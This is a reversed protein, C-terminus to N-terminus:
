SDEDGDADEDEGVNEDDGGGGSGNGSGVENPNGAPMRGHEKGTNQANQACRAANKPDLWFALQTDWDAQSINKPRRSRIREMDYTRDDPNPVWHEAKLASKNDTYIKALHQEIGKKIKPWLDSQMHPTLDFQTSLCSRAKIAGNLGYRRRARNIRLRGYGSTGPKGAPISDAPKGAEGTPNKPTKAVVDDDNDDNALDEDDFDALDHPLADEDNISDDDEDVDIIYSPADVDMSQGDINLTAFDLDDLSTSLALDFSNDFHIFDDDDKVM